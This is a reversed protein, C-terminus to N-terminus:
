SFRLAQRIPRIWTSLGGTKSGRARRIPLSAWVGQDSRALPKRLMTLPMPFSSFGKETVNWTAVPFATPIRPACWFSGRTEWGLARWRVAVPFPTVIASRSAWRANTSRSRAPRSGSRRFQRSTRAQDLARLLRGHRRYRLLWGSEQCSIATHYDEAYYFAPAPAIETTIDGFGKEQLAAQYQAKSAAAAKAQDENTTYIASRYQTGVDNGQRMGQTPDHAEWFHQM